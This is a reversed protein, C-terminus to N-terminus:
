LLLLFDALFQFTIQQYNLLYTRDFICSNKVASQM